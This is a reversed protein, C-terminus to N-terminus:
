KGPNGHHRAIEEESLRLFRAANNYLIDRKQEESLFPTAEVTEIALGLAGPWFMQDTGFLLRDGFGADVLEKLADYFAARPLAWALVGIDAYLGPYIYMMAVTETIYPWGAHMLYVKLNPHRVLVPELLTPRGLTVRFKPAFSHPGGPPGLGTHLALPVGMEEAAAYYPELRPDDPSIGNYQLGLEGLVGFVGEEVLARLTDVPHEPWGDEGLSAGGIFRDPAAARWTRVAEEPGSVMGLVVNYRDMQALTSQMHEAATTAGPLARAEPEGTWSASAGPPVETYAHLHVDIVPPRQAVVTQSVFALFFGLSTAVTWGGLFTKLM